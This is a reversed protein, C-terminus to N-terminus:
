PFFVRELYRVKWADSFRDGGSPGFGSDMDDRQMGDFTTISNVRDRGSGILDIPGDLGNVPTNEAQLCESTKSALQHSSQPEVGFARLVDPGLGARQLLPSSAPGSRNFRKSRNPAAFLTEDVSAHSTRKTNNTTKLAEDENLKFIFSIRNLL